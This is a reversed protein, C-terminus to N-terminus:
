IQVSREVGRTDKSFPLFCVFIIDVRQFTSYLCEDITFSQVSAGM